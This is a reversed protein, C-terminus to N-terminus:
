PRLPLQTIWYPTTPEPPTTFRLNVAWLRGAAVTATSPIDLSPDTLDGLVVGATMSAALSVLTVRNLFPRVVYLNHGVLELGDIYGLDAGGLDVEDAAGTAPDVRFLKGTSSQDVLLAGDKAIIGNLNLGPTQVFDGSLQLATAASPPPLSGHRGLPIVVLQPFGSDTVYVADRTVAVDNMLAVGPVQYTALLAGSSADYVRVDGRGLLLPGVGAVWIRDHRADYAIGASALGPEGPAFVSLSGTRFDGRWITGDTMSGAFFSTGRGSEIGEPFSGNPLDIRAPFNGSHGAPSAGASPSVALFVLAALLAIAYNTTLKRTMM